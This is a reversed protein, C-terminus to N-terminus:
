FTYNARVRLEDDKADKSGMEFAATVGFADSFQYGGTLATYAREYGKGDELLYSAGVYANSDIKYKAALKTSDQGAQYQYAFVESWTYALDAGNGVGPIVDADDDTTTYALTLNLPGFTADGKIGFLDSRQESDQQSTYYQAAVGFHGISYASEFYATEFADLANVYAATLTLNDFSANKIALTYAGDDLEFAWPAGATKFTETFKGIDGNGDTRSQFKDMYAFTLTTNSLDKNVLTVGQFAEKTVRSGSGGLLPSWFYMRGLQAQTKNVGYSLYAESLQAGSGYMNSRRASKAENNAWPSTTYQFTSKFGFGNLTATQYSLDFGLTAIENDKGSAKDRAFYYGQFAGSVTGQQIAERLSSAEDSSDAYTHASTLVSAAAIAVVLTNSTNM